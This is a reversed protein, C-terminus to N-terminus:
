PWNVEPRKKKSFKKETHQGSTPWVPGGGANAKEDTPRPTDAPCSVEPCCVFLDKFFFFFSRLDVLLSILLFIVQPRSSFDVQPRSLEQIPNRAPQGHHHAQPLASRFAAKKFKACHCVVLVLVFISRSRRQAAAM